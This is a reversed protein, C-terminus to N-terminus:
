KIKISKNKKYDSMDSVVVKEGEKLGSIVEVYEYSSDGLVVRRKVIRNGELVFLEYNGAQTYYSNNAIRLVNEHQQGLVYVEVKAGSRFGEGNDNELRVTFNVMGNRSLPDVNTIFGDRKEGNIKVMVRSGVLANSAFMDSISCDIKFHNLDSIVAIKSGQSVQAGIQNNIFSLVARRPARIQADTLTRRIENLNRLLIGYELKKAQIDAEKVRMANEYEEKLQQLELNGTNYNMEAERVKDTTGSGLSDLYKENKWEVASRNLRMIAVKIRMKFNSIQTAGNLKVQELEFRKMEVEDEMKKVDAQASMLDLKLLPTGAEVLDGTKHYIEIIKSNIPSNIIEEFAPVIVGQATYSLSIDGRKVTSFVLSEKKISRSILMSLFLASIVVAVVPIAIKLIMKRRDGRIEEKSLLRDMYILSNYVKFILWYILRDTVSIVVPTGM